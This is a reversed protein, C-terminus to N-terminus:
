KLIGNREVRLKSIHEQLELLRVKLDYNKEENLEKEEFVM